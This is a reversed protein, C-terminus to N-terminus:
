PHCIQHCIQVGGPADIVQALVHAALLPPIANGVQGFQQTRSGHWPYDPPFSQLTAAEEVTVRVSDEGFQPQGHNRDKHGPGAIRPDAQVTTAPRDQVWGSLSSGTVTPSPEDVSREYRSIQTTRIVWEATRAKGTVTPAPQDTPTDPRAGHRDTMGTGRALRYAALRHRYDANAFVEVGGGSGTGGASVTAADAMSRWRQRGAGGFLDEGQEHRAHTAAPPSVKRDRSALLIARERTQPVGMDAANLVGAWASWGWARLQRAYEAWVPMADPVQEMAVWRVGPMRALYRAPELILATVAADDAAAADVREPTWRRTTARKRNAAQRDALATPHVAARVAARVDRGDLAPAVAAVLVDLVKRGIGTGARSLKTCPPSAILGTAPFMGPDLVAVDGRIRPHGAAHATRCAPADWEVGVVRGHHGLIRLGEEWGGAGAFLDVIM